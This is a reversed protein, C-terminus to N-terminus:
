PRQCFTFPSLHQSFHLVQSSLRHFPIIYCAFSHSSECPSHKQSQICEQRLKYPSVFCKLKGSLVLEEYCQQLQSLIRGKGQQTVDPLHPLHFLRQHLSQSLTRSWRVMRGGDLLDPLTTWMGPQGTLQWSPCLSCIVTMSGNHIKDDSCQKSWYQIAILLIALYSCVSEKNVKVPFKNSYKNLVNADRIVDRSM